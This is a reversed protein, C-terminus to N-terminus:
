APERRAIEDRGVLHALARIEERLTEVEREMAQVHDELRSVRLDMEETPQMAFRWTRPSNAARAGAPAASSTRNGM